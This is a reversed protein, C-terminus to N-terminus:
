AHDRVAYLGIYVDVMAEDVTRDHIGVKELEARAAALLQEDPLHSQEPTTLPIGASQGPAYYAARYSAM